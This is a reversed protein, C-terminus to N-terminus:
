VATKAHKKALRAAEREMGKVILRGLTDASITKNADYARRIFFKGPIRYEGPKLQRDKVHPEGKARRFPIWGKEQFYGYFVKGQPSDSVNSGVSLGVVGPRKKKFVRIKINKKLQGGVRGSNEPYRGVPAAKRATKLIPKAAERLAFTVVKKEVREPLAKLAAVLDTLGTLNVAIIEEAM